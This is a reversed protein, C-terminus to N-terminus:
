ANKSLGSPVVGPWGLTSRLPARPFAVNKIEGDKYAKKALGEPSQM